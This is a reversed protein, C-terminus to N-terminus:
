VPVPGGFLGFFRAIWVVTQLAISAVLLRVIWKGFAGQGIASADGDRLVLWLMRFSLAGLLVLVLPAVPNMRTATALDGHLLALTARTTGCGPCPEGTVMAFACRVHGSLVLLGAGGLAGLALAARGWFPGKKHGIERERAKAFGADDRTEPPAGVPALNRNLM